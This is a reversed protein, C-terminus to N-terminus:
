IFQRWMNWAPVLAPSAFLWYPATIGFVEPFIKLAPKM